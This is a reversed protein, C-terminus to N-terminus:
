RVGIDREMNEIQTRSRWAIARKMDAWAMRRAERTTAAVLVRHLWAIRKERSVDEEASDM